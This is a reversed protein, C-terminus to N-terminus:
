MSAVFDEQHVRRPKWYVAIPSTVRHTEDWWEISGFSEVGNTPIASGGLISTFTISYSLIKQKANFELRTRSVSVRVYNPANVSAQYVAKVSRGVNKVVRRYTVVDKTSKFVVSFSPYNLEGPSSFNKASCDILSRDQVFQAIKRSSYGISCLFAIYDTSDLDYVLGPNLADKPNILGSGQVFLSFQNKLSLDTIKKGANDINYTTTMIASKIASPSWRPYANRLLAALGSVHPCAMSTGSIINYMVRRKDYSLKSPALSGTWGALINVGPAIVDPKLIDLTVPNPGRSSFAAVKPASPSPGLVTGRFMIRAKPYATNSMYTKIITGTTYTVTTAPIIYPLAKLEDGKIAKNILVMGLGGAKEVAYSKAVPSTEGAMCVVMKGYVKSRDLEGEKCVSSGCAQGTVLMLTSTTSNKKYNFLSSGKLVKGNGLVVDAPFERYITSAGVTIIWPAVNKVTFSEPGSNGASASVVVGKMMAGFAGSAVPDISYDTYSGGLSMSLVHVGDQIAQDMAALIDASSGLSSTGWYVKYVAIRAKPAVGNARGSAYGYFGVNDVVSGGAVSACHSGHGTSDRPSKIMTLPGHKAEYGKFFFRAGIIKNNCSTAPFDSGVECIGRWNAPVKDLGTDHFSPNEPWIGSDVVGIIVDSGWDTDPWIGSEDSLGLFTTTETTAAEVMRDPIVSLVSPHRRLKAAKSASIVVLFYSLPDLDKMAFESSLQSIVHHRLSESSATLVIDDVYLLIYATENGHHYIFLSNDSKSHVFGITAVFDQADEDLQASGEDVGANSGAPIAPPPVLGRESRSVVRVWGM